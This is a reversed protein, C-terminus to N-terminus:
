QQWPDVLAVGTDRFDAINRTALTLGHQLALAAILSDIVPLPRGGRELRATLSAWTRMTVTDIPLIRGSFRLILDSDLWALLIDKRGSAALKEIGKALEGITIVSLYVDHPNLVDIWDLVRQTPRRAVLESIVNTDLLYSM